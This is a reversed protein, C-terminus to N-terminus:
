RNQKHRSVPIGTRAMACYAVGTVLFPVNDINKTGMIRHQGDILIGPKLEDTVERYIDRVASDPLGALVEKQLRSLFRLRGIVVQKPSPSLGQLESKIELPVSDDAIEDDQTDAADSEELSGELDVLTEDSVEALEGKLADQRFADAVKRLSQRTLQQGSIDILEDFIYQELNKYESGITDIIQEKTEPDQDSLWGIEIKGEITEGPSVDYDSLPKGDDKMAKIRNKARIPDFGVVVATPSSNDKNEFFRQVEQIHGPIEARQFNRVNGTKKTPVRAWSDIESSPAVFAM